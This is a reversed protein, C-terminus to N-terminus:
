ISSKNPKGKESEKIKKCRPERDEDESRTGSIYFFETILLTYYLILTFYLTFRHVINPFYFENM